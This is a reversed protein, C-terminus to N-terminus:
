RIVFFDILKNQKIFDDVKDEEIPSLLLDTSDRKRYAIVYKDTDIYAIALNHKTNILYQFIHIDNDLCFDNLYVLKTTAIKDNLKTYYQEDLVIGNSLLVEKLTSRKTLSKITGNTAFEIIYFM